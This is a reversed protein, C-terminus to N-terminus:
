RHHRTYYHRGMIPLARDGKSHEVWCPKSYTHSNVSVWLPGVLLKINTPPEPLPLSLPLMVANKKVAAATITLGNKQAKEV